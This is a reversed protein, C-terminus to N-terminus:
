ETYNGTEETNERAKKLKERAEEAEKKAAEAAKKAEEAKKKAAEAKKKASEKLAQELRKILAAQQQGESQVRSMISAVRRKLGVGVGKDKHDAAISQKLFGLAEQLVPAKVGELQSALNEKVPLTGQIATALSRGTNATPRVDKYQNALAVGSQFVVMTQQVLAKERPSLGGDNKGSKKDGQEGAMGSSTSSGAPPEYVGRFKQMTGKKRYKMPINSADDTYHTKGNEDKYKYVKARAPDPQFAILGLLAFIMFKPLVRPFQISTKMLYLPLHIELRIIM